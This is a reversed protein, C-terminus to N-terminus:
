LLGGVCSRVVYVRTITYTHSNDADELAIFQVVYIVTSHPHSFPRNFTCGFTIIIIYNYTLNM